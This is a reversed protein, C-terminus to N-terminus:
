EVKILHLATAKFYAKVTKGEELALEEIAQKTVFSILPFGCDLEIKYFIGCLALKTIRGPLSNRFSIESLENERFLGIVVNEPRICIRVKQGPPFTSVAKLTKGGSLKITALSGTNEIVEGQLITEMGVFAAVRDNVPYNFVEPPKGQQLIKGDFIVGLRDGMILAEDRTHTVFISTMELSSLLSKLEYILTENMLPDLESFPEDMLLLEPDTVFARALSVRAAEGGSLRTAPRCALHGIALKEMWLDAKEKISREPIKRFRLGLAINDRVTMSYMLPSQFVASIRRRLELCDKGPTVTNGLVSLEGSDFPDLLGTVRLLSSKGAGNPGIISKLQGKKLVFDVEDVAKLGGFYKCIKETRLLM